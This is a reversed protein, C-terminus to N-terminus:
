DKINYRPRYGVKESICSLYDREVHNDNEEHVWKVRLDEGDNFEFQEKVFDDIALSRRKHEAMRRHVDNTRGVYLVEPDELRVTVGILYIGKVHPVDDLDYARWIKNLLRQCINSVM